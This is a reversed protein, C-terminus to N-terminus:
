ISYRRSIWSPWTMRKTLIYLIGRNMYAEPMKPDLEIAKNLDQLSADYHDVEYEAWGRNNYAFALGPDLALARDLDTVSQSWDRMRNLAWGRNSYADALRLILNLPMISPYFPRIMFSTSSTLRERTIILRPLTRTPWQLILALSCRCISTMSPMKINAEGDYAWGRNNYAEALKSDLQLAKDLDDIAGNYDKNDIRTLARNNYATALKKSAEPIDAKLDIAKQYEAIAADWNGQKANSDGLWM